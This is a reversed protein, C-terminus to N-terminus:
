KMKVIINDILRVDGVWVATCIAIDCPKNIEELPQLTKAEVIELYEPKFGSISLAEMATKRAADIPQEEVWTKASLLVSYILSARAKQVVTLRENRSSMALGNEERIIDCTHLTTQIDLERIMHEIMRAQQLDKQGMYLHDAPIIELLRKMVKVVGYFHGPRHLGEMGEDLGKMDIDIEHDQDAPYVEEVTPVFLLQCGIGALGAMDSELTRPYKLLDAEQNFQAPNVFISCVVLDNERLAQRVLAYHGDHLAGMTPVFGISRGMAAEGNLVSTLESASEILRM